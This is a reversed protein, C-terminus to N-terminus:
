VNEAVKEISRMADDFTRWGNEGLDPKLVELLKENSKVINWLWQVLDTEPFWRNAGVAQKLTGIMVDEAFVEITGYSHTEFRINM